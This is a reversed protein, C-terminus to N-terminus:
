VGVLLYRAVGIVMGRIDAVRRKSHQSRCCCVSSSSSSSLRAHYLQTWQEEEIARGRESAFVLFWIRFVCNITKLRIFRACITRTLISVLNWVVVSDYPRPDAATPPPHRPTLRLTTRRTHVLHVLNNINSVRLTNKKKSAQKYISTWRKAQQQSGTAWLCLRGLSRDSPLCVCGTRCNQDMWCITPQTRSPHNSRSGRIEWIFRSTGRYFILSLPLLYKM